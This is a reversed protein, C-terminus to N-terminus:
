LFELGTTPLQDYGYTENYTGCVFTQVSADM